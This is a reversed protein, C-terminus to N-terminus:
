SNVNSKYGLYLKDISCNNPQLSQCAHWVLAHTHKDEFKRLHKLLPDAHSKKSQCVHSIRIDEFKGVEWMALKYSIPNEEAGYSSWQQHIQRLAVQIGNIM